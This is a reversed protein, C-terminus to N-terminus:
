QMSPDELSDTPPEQDPDFSVEGKSEPYAYGKQAIEELKMVRRNLEQYMEMLRENTDVKKFNLYTNNDKKVEEVDITVEDGERWGENWPAKFGSILTDGHEECKILRRTYPKNDKTKLPAGSKDTTRDMISTLTVKKIM